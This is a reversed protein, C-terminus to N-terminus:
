PRYVISYLIASNLVQIRTIRTHIINYAQLISCHTQTAFIIRVKQATFYGRKELRAVFICRVGSFFFGQGPAACIIIISLSILM